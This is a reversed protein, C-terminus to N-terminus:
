VQKENPYQKSKVPFKQKSETFSKMLLLKYEGFDIDVEREEILNRSVAALGWLRVSWCPDNDLHFALPHEHSESWNCELNCVSCTVCDARTKTPTHIFGIKAMFNATYALNTKFKAPWGKKKTGDPLKTQFSALRNTLLDM